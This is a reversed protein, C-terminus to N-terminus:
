VETVDQEGEMQSATAAALKAAADLAESTAAAELPNHVPAMRVLNEAKVYSEGAALASEIAASDMEASAEAEDAAGSASAREDYAEDAEDRPVGGSGVGATASDGNGKSKSASAATSSAAARDPRRAGMDQLLKKNERRYRMRRWINKKLLWDHGEKGKTYKQNYVFETGDPLELWAKYSRTAVVAPEDMEQAIQKDPFATVVRQKKGSKNTKDDGSGSSSSGRMERARKLTEHDKINNRRAIMIRRMLREEDNAQGKTFERCAYKMKQGNELQQWKIFSPSQKIVEENFDAPRPGMKPGPM